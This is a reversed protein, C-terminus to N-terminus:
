APSHPFHARLQRRPPADLYASPEILRKVPPDESSGPALRLRAAIKPHAEAFQGALRRVYSLERNYYPLLADSMPGGGQGRLRRDGTEVDLRVRDTRTRSRRDALRRHPLPSHPGAARPQRPAAGCRDQVAARGPP